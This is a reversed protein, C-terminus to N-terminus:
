AIKRQKYSGEVLMTERLEYVGVIVKGYLDALVKIDDSANYWDAGGGTGKELKVYMCQPLTLHQTDLM